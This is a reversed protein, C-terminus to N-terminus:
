VPLKSANLEILTYAGYEYDKNEPFTFLNEIKLEKLYELTDASV